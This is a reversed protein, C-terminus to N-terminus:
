TQGGDQNAAALARDLYAGLTILETNPLIIAQEIPDDRVFERVKRLAAVVDPSPAPRPYTADALAGLIVNLNNSLLADLRKEQDRDVAECIERHLSRYDDTAFGSPGAEGSGAPPEQPHVKGCEVQEAEPRPAEIRQLLARLRAAAPEVHGMYDRGFADDPVELEALRDLLFEAEQWVEAAIPASSPTPHSAIIARAAAETVIGFAADAADTGPIMYDVGIRAYYSLSRMRGKGDVDAATGFARAVAFVDEAAASDPAAVRTTM